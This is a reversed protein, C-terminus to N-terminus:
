LEFLPSFNVEFEQLGDEYLLSCFENKKLLQVDNLQTLIDASHDQTVQGGSLDTIKYNRLLREKDENIKVGWKKGEPDSIEEFLVKKDTAFEPFEKLLRGFGLRFIGKINDSSDGVVAKALALNKPHTGFKDLVDKKTKFEGSHQLYMVTNNDVLQGLDWDTTAIARFDQSFIDSNILWAIVDDAELEDVRIQTMNLKSLYEITRDIQYKLNEKVQEDSMKSFIPSLNGRGRTGKYEPLVKRKNAVYDVGDWVLIVRDPSLDSCIRTIGTLTTKVGGFPNGKKDISGEVYYGRKLLNMM